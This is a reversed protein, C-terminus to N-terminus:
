GGPRRPIPCALVCGAEASPPNQTEDRNSRLRQATSSAPTQFPPEKAGIVPETVNFDLIHLADRLDTKQKRVRPRAYRAAAGVSLEDSGQRARTVFLRGYRGDVWTVYRMGASRAMKVGIHGSV